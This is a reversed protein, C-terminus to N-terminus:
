HKKVLVGLLADAYAVANKAVTEPDNIGEGSLLGQMALVAFYERKTLGGDIYDADPFANESGLKKAAKEFNQKLKEKTM